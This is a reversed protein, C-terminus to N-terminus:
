VIQDHADFEGVVEIHLPVVVNQVPTVHLLLMTVATCSVPRPIVPDMGEDRPPSDLKVNNSRLALLMDPVTGDDNPLSLKTVARRNFRLMKVPVTGMNSPLIDDKFDNRRPNLESAPLMAVHTPLPNPAVSSLSRSICTFENVPVIGLVRQLVGSVVNYV